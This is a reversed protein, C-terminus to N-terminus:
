ALRQRKWSGSVQLHVLILCRCDSSPWRWPPPGPEARVVGGVSCCARSECPHPVAVCEHRVCSLLNIILVVSSLTTCMCFLSGRVGSAPQHEREPTARLIGPGSSPVRAGFLAWSTCVTGPVRSGWFGRSGLVGSSLPGLASPLMGRPTLDLQYHRSAVMWLGSKRRLCVPAGPHPAEWRCAGHSGLM